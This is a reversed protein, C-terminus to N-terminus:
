GTLRERRDGPKTETLRRPRDAPLNGRRENMPSKADDRDCSSDSANPDGLAELNSRSRALESLAHNAAKEEVLIEQLLDAAEQNALLKAWNRLCGYTAIESHELKQAVSILAANLVPYGKNDAAVEDGEKLLGVTAECKKARPKEGFSRFVKELKKVHTETEKLHAQVLKKLHACTAAQVMKPMALLLQKESDFRDALEDLFLHKLTRM